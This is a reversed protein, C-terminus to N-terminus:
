RLRWEIFNKQHGFSRYAHRHHSAGFYGYNYPQKWVPAQNAQPITATRAHRSAPIPARIVLHPQQTPAWLGIGAGPSLQDGDHYSHDAVSPLVAFTSTILIIAIRMKANRNQM